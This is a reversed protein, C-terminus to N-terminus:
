FDPATRHGDQDDYGVGSVGMSDTTTAAYPAIVIRRAPQLALVGVVMAIGLVFAASTLALAQQLPSM